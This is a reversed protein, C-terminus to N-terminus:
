AMRTVPPQRVWVSPSAGSRVLREQTQLAAELSLDVDHRLLVEGARPTSDFGAFRYGGEKAAEILERYHRLDFACTM